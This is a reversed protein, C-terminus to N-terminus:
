LYENPVTQIPVTLDLAYNWFGYPNAGVAKTYIRDWRQKHEIRLEETMMGWHLCVLDLKTVINERGEIKAGNVTPHCFRFPGKSLNYFKVRHGNAFPGDVRVWEKSEWLNLWKTDVLDSDRHKNLEFLKSAADKEYTEDIDWAMAWDYQSNVLIDFVHQKEMENFEQKGNCQAFGGLCLPHGVMMNHLKANVRDLYIVFQMNLREAEALYQPVWRADAQCVATFAAIRM